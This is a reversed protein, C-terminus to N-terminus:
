GKARHRRVQDLLTSTETRARGQAACMAIFEKNERAFMKTEPDVIRAQGGAPHREEVNGHKTAPSGDAAISGDDNFHHWGTAILSELEGDLAKNYPDWRKETRDAGELPQHVTCFFQIGKGPEVGYCGCKFRIPM